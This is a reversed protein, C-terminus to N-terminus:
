REGSAMKWAGTEVAEDGRGSVYVCVVVSPFRCGHLFRRELERLSGMMKLGSLVYLHAEVEEKVGCFSRSRGERERCLSERWLITSWPCRHENGTVYVIETLM